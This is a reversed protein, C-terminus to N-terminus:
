DEEHDAQASAARLSRAKVIQSVMESVSYWLDRPRSITYEVGKLFKVAHGISDRWPTAQPYLNYNMYFIPANVGAFKRLTEVPVNQELLAKPGAFIVADFGERPGEGGAVETKFISELFETEGNKNALRALDVTGLKLSQLSKGIAPFDIKESGDQRYLISQEHMNFAVVSFKGIRPDRSITRLISVLASTDLPQLTAANSKQPAFNVLVKVRLPQDPDRAVPPEDRFQEAETPEIAGGSIMLNMNRDKTPLVSEVEWFSSCVREARDRMLWEVKYRGEGLDVSGQLFVEGKADEEVNPVRIKQTFYTPDGSRKGDKDLPTVRFLTTLLNEGGALERLPITVDYTAHFRLDFGLQPKDNVVTCPLDKRQEGAELVAEDTGILRINTRGNLGLLIQAQAVTTCLLAPVTIACLLSKM